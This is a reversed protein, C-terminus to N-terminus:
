YRMFRKQTQEECKAHRKARLSIIIKFNRLRHPQIKILKNESKQVFSTTDARRRMTAIREVDTSHVKSDTFAIYNSFYNEVESKAQM